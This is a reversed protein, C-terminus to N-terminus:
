ALRQRLEALVAGTQPRLGRWLEYSEAAQEVLMGLGDSARAGRLARQRSSRSRARRRLGHRLRLAGRAPLWPPLALPEGHTSTSTANIVLDFDSEPIADLAAARSRARTVRLSRSNRAGERAHSQRDRARRAAARAAARDRRAGRRRRRAAPHARRRLDLGLNARSTRSSGRATPTTASRDRRRPARPLEGRGRPARARFRPRRISVCRGQLAADRQAGRRRRRLLARAYAAFEGAPVLLRRTTSASASRRRSVRMSRPRSAIRSPIASSSTVTWPLFARRQGPASHLPGLKYLIAVNGAVQEIHHVISPLPVANTRGNPRQKMQPRRILPKVIYRRPM